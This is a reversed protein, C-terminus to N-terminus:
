PSDHHRAAGRCGQPAAAVARRLTVAAIITCAIRSAEEPGDSVALVGQLLSAAGVRTVGPGRRRSRKEGRIRECSVVVCGLMKSRCLSLRDVTGTTASPRYRASHSRQNRSGAPSLGRGALAPGGAPLSDQTTTSFCVPSRSWSDYVALARAASDAGFHPTTSASSVSPGFPLVLPAIRLSLWDRLDQERPKVPTSSGPCTRTLTASSSPLGPRRRGSFQPPLTRAFAVFRPAVPPLLRLAGLLSSAPLGLRLSGASRLARRSMAGRSPVIFSVDPEVGM